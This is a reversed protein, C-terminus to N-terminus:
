VEELDEESEAEQEVIRCRIPHFSFAVVVLQM